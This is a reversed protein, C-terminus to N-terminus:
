QVGSGLIFLGIMTISNWLSHLLMSSLLGRSRTYVIGLIIGLVSLPLVESLSLHALAFVLSSVAIAGWVPFYRTLSPLLFGRFLTEEFVPAAVAATFFFLALAVPDGEELVIQLLPNSGGQGQWLQQNVLSVVFMLPLAVFYGGVGWLVWNRKGILRFWDDPLPRFPKVQRYLIYLGTGAMLLYYALTYFAKARGGVLGSLSLTMGFSSAVRGALGLLGPIAVQGAFFFGVILVWAITEWTWPVEWALTDQSVASRKQLLWQIGLTILLGIGIMAGLTPVTTILLLKFLTQQAVEQQATQLATLAENRQQLTYLRALSQYRFWGDLQKQLLEEANPLLQPPESWLGILVQAVQAAPPMDPHAALPQWTTLAAATEGQIAQLLGIRLDLQNLLTRQQQIATRTQKEQQSPTAPATPVAIPEGSDPAAAFQQLQNQFKNLNTTATQRVDQYQELATALPDNGVVAKQLTTSGEAQLETVQLLLDTQYLQLRSTIQPESLSGWLSFGLLPFVVLAVAILVVRKLSHGAM